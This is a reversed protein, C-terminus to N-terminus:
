NRIIKLTENELRVYYVGKAFNSFDIQKENQTLEGGQRAKVFHAWSSQANAIRGM